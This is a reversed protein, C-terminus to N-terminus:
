FLHAWEKRDQVYKIVNFLRHWPQACQGLLDGSEVWKGNRRETATCEKFQLDGEKTIDGKVEIRQPLPLKMAKRKPLVGIKIYNPYYADVEYSLLFHGSADTTISVPATLSLSEYKENFLNDATTYITALGSKIIFTKGFAGTDPPIAGNNKIARIAESLREGLEISYANRDGIYVGDIIHTQAYAPLSAFIFLLNRNLYKLTTLQNAVKLGTIPLKKRVVHMIDHRGISTTTLDKPCPKKGV